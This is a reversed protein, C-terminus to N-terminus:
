PTLVILGNRTNGASAVHEAAGLVGFLVVSHASVEAPTDKLIFTVLHHRLPPLVLSFLCWGDAKIRSASEHVAHCLPDVM